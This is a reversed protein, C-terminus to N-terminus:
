PHLPDVKNGIPKLSEYWLSEVFTLGIHSERKELPVFIHNDWGGSEKMVKFLLQNYGADYKEKHMNLRATYDETSGVYICQLDNKRFIGYICADNEGIDSVKNGKSVLQSRERAIRHYEEFKKQREKENSVIKEYDAPCEKRESMNISAKSRELGYRDCHQKVTNPMLGVKKGIATYTLGEKLWKELNEKSLLEKKTEGAEKIKRRQEKIEDRLEQRKQQEPTEKTKTESGGKKFPWQKNGTEEHGISSEETGDIKEIIVVNRSEQRDPINTLVVTKEGTDERIEGVEQSEGTKAPLNGTQLTAPKEAEGSKGTKGPVGTDGPVKELDGTKELTKRSVKGTKSTELKEKSDGTKRSYKKPTEQLGTGTEQSGYLGRLYEYTEKMEKELEERVSKYGYRSVLGRIEYTLMM